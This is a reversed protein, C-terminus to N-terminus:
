NYGQRCGHSEGATYALLFVCGELSAVIGELGVVVGSLYSEGFAAGSM